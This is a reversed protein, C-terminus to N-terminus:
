TKRFVACLTETKDQSEPQFQKVSFIEKTEMVFGAAVVLNEIDDVSQFNTIHDMANSNMPTVVYLPSDSKLCHRIRLLAKDPHHIHEIVEAMLGFEMSQKPFDLEKQIDGIKLTFLDESFSQKLLRTAYKLSYVSIDIGYVGCHPGGGV